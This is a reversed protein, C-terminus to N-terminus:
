RTAAGPIVAPMRLTPMGNADVPDGLGRRM